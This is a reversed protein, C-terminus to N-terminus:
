EYVTISIGPGRITRKKTGREAPPRINEQAEAGEDAYPSEALLDEAPVREEAPAQGRPKLPFLSEHHDGDETHMTVKLSTDSVVDVRAIRTYGSSVSGGYGFREGSPGVIEERGEDFAVGMAALRQEDGDAVAIRARYPPPVERDLKAAILHALQRKTFQVAIGPQGEGAGESADVDFLHRRGKYVGFREADGEPPTVPPGLVVRFVRAVRKIEPLKARRKLAACDSRWIRMISRVDESRYNLRRAGEADERVFKDRRDVWGDRSEVAVGQSRGLENFAEVSMRRCNFRVM